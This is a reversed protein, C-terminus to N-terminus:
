SAGAPQDTLWASSWPALRLQAGPAPSARGALPVWKAGDGAVGVTCPEGSVNVYVRAREGSEAAREVAFVQPPADLLTQQSDPHFAPTAARAALLERLGHWAAGARSAGDALLRRLGAVDDFRRRHLARPEGTREFRERDNEGAVASQVYTAPIGRLALMVAHAALHRRLAVQQSCGAAMLAYWTSNLEYVSTEGSALTRRTVDGGARLTADVLLDVDAADLLGEAPRIGVGDHSALFNLFATGPRPPELAAAWSRLRSADQTLLAHLTLPPLPFQYVLHAEEAGPSGFYSVNEEHRVNTETLVLVSPDVSEVCGRLFRVIAHTEPLHISPTGEEKWLFAIADLRLVDAGREVYTLLVELVRLLVEPTRYDLDVQDESFTTWAWLPGDAGEFRTLLPRTRPRVVASLDSAPDATRFFGAYRPDGALFGQFWASGASLHNLVADVALRRDGALAHLDEWTGYREDVALYDSVAFGEDSTSPFFPTVHLGNFWPDFVDRMVTRLTALPGEGDCTFQDPYTILWADREDWRQARVPRAPQRALLQEVEIAVRAAVEAGYLDDLLRRRVAAPADAGTTLAM